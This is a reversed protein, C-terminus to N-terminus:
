DAGLTTIPMHGFETGRKVIRDSQGLAYAEYLQGWATTRKWEEFKPRERRNYRYLDDYVKSGWAVAQMLSTNFLLRQVREFGILRPLKGHEGRRGPSFGWSEGRVDAGVVEIDRPDGVGLGDDHARRIYEIGLPDFGMLKAAVADIAVQDTSALLVNKTIPVISGPWSGNGASTGDMIAFIGSHIERQIALLDVLVQHVWPHAYWRRQQLLGSFACHMAGAVVINRHCKLAPLHVVNKDFFYDPLLIGSRFVRHLAHMRAKPRYEVWKVDRRKFTYLVPLDYKEWLVACPSVGSAKSARSALPRHQVVSLNEFGARKLTQVAGELQWPTTSAAPIPHGSTMDDNLITAVGRSLASDLGASRCLLEIDQLVTEPSTRVVGVRSSGM